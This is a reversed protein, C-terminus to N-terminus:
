VIFMGVFWLVFVVDNIMLKILVIFFDFKMVFVNCCCLIVFIEMVGGLILYFDSLEGYDFMVVINNDDFFDCFVIILECVGGLLYCFYYYAWNNMDEM